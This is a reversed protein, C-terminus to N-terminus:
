LKNSPIKMADWVTAELQCRPRSFRVDVAEVARRRLLLRAVRRQPPGRVDHLHPGTSNSPGQQFRM